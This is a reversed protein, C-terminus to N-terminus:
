QDGHDGTTALRAHLWNAMLWHGAENFHTDDSQLPTEGRALADRILDTADLEHLDLRHSIAGVDSAFAAPADPRRLRGGHPLVVVVFPIHRERLEDRASRLIAELHHLQVDLHEAGDRVSWAAVASGLFAAAASHGVILVRGLYPIPSNVVLWRLGIGQENHPASPFRLEAHGGEYSLIPQWNSCPHPADLGNLDNGEFLYMVALDVPQRALWSRLVVLYDDPAMGSIGGNIHQVDPELKELDATFTQARPTDSGFVMSDGIHLVRRTAGPRPAFRAPFVISPERGVDVFGTYAAGYAISCVLETTLLAAPPRESPPVLGPPQSLDTRVLVARALSFPIGASRFVAADPAATRLLNPLFFSPGDGTPFAPPRGLFLRAGLELLMCAVVISGTTLWINRRDAFVRHAACVIGCGCLLGEAIGDWLGVLPFYVTLVATVVAPVLLCGIAAAARALHDGVLSRLLVGVLVGVAIPCAFVAAAELIM